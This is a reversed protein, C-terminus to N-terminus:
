KFLV